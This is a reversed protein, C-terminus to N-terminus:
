GLDNGVLSLYDAIRLREEVVIDLAKGDRFEIHAKGYLTRMTRAVHIVSRVLPLEQEDISITIQAM